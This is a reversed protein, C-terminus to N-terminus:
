RPEEQGYAFFDAADRFGNADVAHTGGEAWMEFDEFRGWDPSWVTHMLYLKVARTRERIRAQKAEALAPDIRPLLQNLFGIHERVRLREREPADKDALIPATTAPQHVDAIPGIGSGRDIRIASDRHSGLDGFTLGRWLSVCVIIVGFLAFFTGPAAKRLVLGRNDWNTRLEGAETFIGHIFLRYGLFAFGLGTLVTVVKYITLAMLMTHIDSM